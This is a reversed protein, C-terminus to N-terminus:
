LGKFLRKTSKQSIYYFQSQDTTKLNKEKTNKSYRDLM